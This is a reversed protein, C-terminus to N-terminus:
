FKSWNTILSKAMYKTQGNGKYVAVLFELLTVFKSNEVENNDENIQLDMISSLAKEKSWWRTAVIKQFRYLKGHESHKEGTIRMWITM